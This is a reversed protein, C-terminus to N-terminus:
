GYINFWKRSKHRQYLEILHKKRLSIQQTRRENLIKPEPYKIRAIIEAAADESIVNQDFPYKKFLQSIGNMNTGYYAIHLYIMPIEQRPVIESLTTSLLIEKIKRSITKEFNGTLVRVLQQEITSAGEIRNYFLRNRLARIIALIDFGIHFRFRHDEGSILIRELINDHFKISSSKVQTYTQLLTSRLFLYQSPYITKAGFSLFRRIIM